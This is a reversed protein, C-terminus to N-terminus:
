VDAEEKKRGMCTETHTHIEAGFGLVELSISSNEAFDCFFFSSM